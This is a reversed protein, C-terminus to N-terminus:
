GADRGSEHDSDHRWRIFLIRAKTATLSILLDLEAQKYSLDAETGPLRRQLVVGASQRKLLAVRRKFRM